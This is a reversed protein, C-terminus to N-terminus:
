IEFKVDLSAKLRGRDVMGGTLRCAEAAGVINVQRSVRIEFPTSV